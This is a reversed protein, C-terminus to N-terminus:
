RRITKTIGRIRSLTLFLEVLIRKTLSLELTKTQGKTPFLNAVTQMEGSTIKVKMDGVKQSMILLWSNFKM